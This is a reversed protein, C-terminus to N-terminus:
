SARLSPCWDIALRSAAISCPPLRREVTEEVGEADAVDALHCRAVKCACESSQVAASLQVPVFATASKLATSPMPVTTARCRERREEGFRM